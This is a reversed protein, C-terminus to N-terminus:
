WYLVLDNLNMCWYLIHHGLENIVPVIFDLEVSKVTINGGGFFYTDVPLFTGLSNDM